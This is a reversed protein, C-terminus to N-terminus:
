FLFYDRSLQAYIVEITHIILLDQDIKYCLFFSTLVALLGFYDCVYEGPLKPFFYDSIVKLYDLLCVDCMRIIVNM